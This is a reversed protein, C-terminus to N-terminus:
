RGPAAPRGAPRWPRARRRGRAWPRAGTLIGGLVFLIDREEREKQIYKYLHINHTYIYIPCRRSVSVNPRERESWSYSEFCGGVQICFLRCSRVVGGVFLCCWEYVVVLVLVCVCVYIYICTYICVDLVAQVVQHPRTVVLETGGEVHGQAVCQGGGVQVPGDLDGILTRPPRHRHRDTQRDTQM